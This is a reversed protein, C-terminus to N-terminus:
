SPVTVLEPLMAVNGTITGTSNSVGGNKLTVELNLEHQMLTRVLLHLEWWSWARRIIAASMDVM